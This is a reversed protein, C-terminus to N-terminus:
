SRTRTVCQCLPTAPAYYCLDSDVNAIASSASRPCHRPQPPRQTAVAHDPSITTTRKRAEVHCKRLYVCADCSISLPLMPMLLLLEGDHRPKHTDAKQARHPNGDLLTDLSTGVACIVGVSVSETRARAAVHRSDTGAWGHGAVHGLYASCALSM